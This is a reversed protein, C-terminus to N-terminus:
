AGSENDHDRELHSRRAGETPLVAPCDDYDCLFPASESTTLTPEDPNTPSTKYGTQSTSQM